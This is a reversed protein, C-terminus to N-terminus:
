QGQTGCSNRIVLDTSIVRGSIDERKGEMMKALLQVAHNGLERAKWDIGSLPPDFDASSDNELMSMIALSEPVRRNLDRAARLVGNALGQSECFAATVGPHERLLDKVALAVRYSDPELNLQLKEQFPLRNKELARQYGRLAQLDIIRREETGLFLIERHGGTILRQVAKDVMATVDIFVWSVGRNDQVEPKGLCVFTELGRSLRKLRGDRKLLETVLYGDGLDPNILDECALSPNFDQGSTTIVVQYNLRHAAEAVGRMLEHQLPFSLLRVLSHPFLVVITGTKALALGKRAKRSRYGLEDIVQLIKSKTEPSVRDDRNNLVNSVTSKSVNARRAIEDITIM